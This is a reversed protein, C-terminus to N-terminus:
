MYKEFYKGSNCVFMIMCLFTLTMVDRKYVNIDERQRGKKQNTINM